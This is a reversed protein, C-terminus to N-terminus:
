VKIEWEHLFSYRIWSMTGRFVTAICFLELLAWIARKWTLIWGYGELLDNRNQGQLM